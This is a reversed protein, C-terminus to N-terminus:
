SILNWPVGGSLKIFPHHVRAVCIIAFLKEFHLVLCFCNELKFFIWLLLLAFSYFNLSDAGMKCGSGDILRVKFLLFSSFAEHM